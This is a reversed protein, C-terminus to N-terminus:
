RCDWQTQSGIDERRKRMTKVVESVDESQEKTTVEKKEKAPKKEETKNSTETGPSLINITESNTCDTATEKKNLEDM